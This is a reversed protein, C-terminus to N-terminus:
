IRANKSSSLDRRKARYLGLGAATVWGAAKCHQDCARIQSKRNTRFLVLGAESSPSLLGQIWLGYEVLECCRHEV